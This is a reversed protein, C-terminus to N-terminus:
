KIHGWVSCWSRHPRKQSFDLPVTKKTIEEFGEACEESLSFKKKNTSFYLTGGKALVDMSKNLLEVHDKQVEFDRETKKSNSFTPPDIVVIDFLRKKKKFLDLQALVDERILKHNKNQEFGNLDLNANLWDLYTTSLDVSTTQSAGGKIAHITFAGTYCFLNLVHKGKSTEQIIKRLPRHDLFLGTDLYDKLNVWFSAGYEKVQFRENQNGLKQYQGKGKTQYRSKVYVCEQTIKLHDCLPEMVERVWAEGHRMPIQPEVKYESVHFRGLYWDIALPLEPIDRDFVRYAELQEKKITHKLRRLNKLVRNKLMLGQEQIKPDMFFLRWFMM